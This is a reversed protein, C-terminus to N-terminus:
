RQFFTYVAVLLLVFAVMKVFSWNEKLWDISKVVLIFTFSLAFVIFILGLLNNLFQSAFETM